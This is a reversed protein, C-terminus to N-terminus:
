QWGNVGCKPGAIADKLAPPLKQVLHGVAERVPKPLPKVCGVVPPTDSQAATAPAAAAQPDAAPATAAPASRPAPAAAEAPAALAVLALAPLLATTVKTVCKNIKM